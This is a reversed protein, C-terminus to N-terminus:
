TVTSLVVRLCGGSCLTYIIFICYFNWPLSFSLLIPIVCSPSCYYLCPCNILTSKLILAEESTHKGGEWYTMDVRSLLLYSCLLVSQSKMWGTNCSAKSSLYIVKWLVIQSYLDIFSSTLNPSKDTVSLIFLSVGVVEEWKELRREEQEM